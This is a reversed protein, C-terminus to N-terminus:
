QTDDTFAAHQDELLGDVGNPFHALIRGLPWFEIEAGLADGIAGGILSARFLHRQRDGTDLHAELWRRQHPLPGAGPRTAAIM